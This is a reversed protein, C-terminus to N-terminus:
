LKKIMRYYEIEYGNKKSLEVIRTNDIHLQSKSAIAGGVRIRDEYAKHLITYLGRGTYEPNVATFVIYTSTGFWEWIIHAAIQGGVKLYVIRKNALSITFNAPSHGASIMNALNQLVVVSLEAPIEDGMCFCVDVDNGLKDTVVM